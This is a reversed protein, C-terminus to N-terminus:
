LLEDVIGEYVCGCEQFGAKEYFPVTERECWLTVTNKGRERLRNVLATVCATGIGHGRVKPAVAVGSICAGGAGVYPAAAVGIVTNKVVCLACAAADAVIRPSLALYFAEREEEDRFLLKAASLYESRMSAPSLFRIGEVDAKVNKATMLALEKSRLLPVDSCITQVGSFRCFVAIEALSPYKGATLYATTGVIGLLATRGTEDTQEFVGGGFRDATELCPLLPSCVGSLLDANKVRVIM